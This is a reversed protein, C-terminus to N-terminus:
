GGALQIGYEVVSTNNLRLLLAKLLCSAYRSRLNDDINTKRMDIPGGFRGKLMREKVQSQRLVTM